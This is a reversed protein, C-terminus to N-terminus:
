FDVLQEAQEMMLKKIFPDQLDGHTFNTKMQPIRVLTSLAHCGLYQFIDSLHSLALAGGLVGDSIGVLAAKKKHLSNPWGLGDIFTKLVGPFSGNYEPVIFVFKEAKDMREKHQNFAPNKGSNEYLASFAFDEPLHELCLIESEVALEHLLHKYYKAVQYTKSNQRNTAAVILIM